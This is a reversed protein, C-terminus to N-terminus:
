LCGKTYHFAAGCGGTGPLLSDELVEAVLLAAPEVSFDPPVMQDKRNMALDAAAAEQAAENEKGIGRTSVLCSRSEEIGCDV